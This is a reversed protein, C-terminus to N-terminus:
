RKPNRLHSDESDMEVMFAKKIDGLKEKMGLFPEITFKQVSWKYMASRTRKKYSSDHCILIISLVKDDMDSGLFAIRTEAQYRGLGLFSVFRTNGFSFTREPEDDDTLHNIVLQKGLHDQKLHCMLPFDIM